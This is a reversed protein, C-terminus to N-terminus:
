PTMTHTKPIQQGKIQSSARIQSNRTDTTTTITLLSSKNNTSPVKLTFISSFIFTKSTRSENTINCVKMGGNDEKAGGVRWM